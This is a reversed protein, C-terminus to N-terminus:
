SRRITDDNEELLSKVPKILAEHTTVAAALQTLISIVFPWVGSNGKAGAYMTIGTILLSLGTAVLKPYTQAVSWKKLYTVILSVVTGVLLDLPSVPPIVPIPDSTQALATVTLVSLALILLVVVKLKRM